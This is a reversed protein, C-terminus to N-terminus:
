SNKNEMPLRLPVGNVEVQNSDVEIVLSLRGNITMGKINNVYEPDAKIQFAPTKITM